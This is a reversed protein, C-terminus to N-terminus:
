YYRIIRGEQSQSTPGSYMIGGGAGSLKYGQEARHRIVPDEIYKIIDPWSETEYHHADIDVILVQSFNRARAQREANELHKATNFGVREGTTIQRALDASTEDARVAM